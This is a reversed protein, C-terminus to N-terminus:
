ASCCSCKRRGSASARSAPSRPSPRRTARGACSRCRCAATWSPRPWIAAMSWRRGASARGRASRRRDAEPVSGADEGDMAAELRDSIAKAAHTSVQQAVIVHLLAWSVPRGSARCRRASRTSRARLTATPRPWIACRANCCTRIKKLDLWIRGCKIKTARHGDRSERGARGAKQMQAVRMRRQDPPVPRPRHIGAPEQQADLIDVRGAAPGLELRRDQVIEAPEAEVPVPRHAALGIVQGVILRRESRSRSMPRM